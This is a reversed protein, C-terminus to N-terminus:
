EIYDREVVAGGKERPHSVAEMTEAVGTSAVQEQGRTESQSYRAIDNLSLVGVVRGDSDLVPLRHVQKLRM